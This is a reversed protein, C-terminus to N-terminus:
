TMKAENAAKTRNHMAEIAGLHTSTNSRSVLIRFWLYPQVCSRQLAINEDAHVNRFGGGHHTYLM